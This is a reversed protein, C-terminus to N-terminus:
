DLPLFYRVSAPHLWFVCREDLTAQNKWVGLKHDHGAYM